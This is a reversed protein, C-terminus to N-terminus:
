KIVENNKIGKKYRTEYVSYILLLNALMLISFMRVDIFLITVTMSLLIIQSLFAFDDSYAITNIYKKVYLQEYKNFDKIDYYGPEIFVLSSVILMIMCLAVTNYNFDFAYTTFPVYLILLVIFFKMKKKINVEVYLENNNSFLKHSKHNIYYQMLIMLISISSLLIWLHHYESKVAYGYLMLLLAYLILTLGTKSKSWLEFKM